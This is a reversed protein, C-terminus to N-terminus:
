TKKKLWCYLSKNKIGGPYYYPYCRHGIFCLYQYQCGKCEPMENLDIELPRRFSNMLESDEWIKKLSERKLNGCKLEWIIECPTVWGDPRIACNAMAAGCSPAVVKDSRPKYNKVDELKKKQTVFSSTVFIFDGFEEKAKWVASIAEEEESPSLYLENTFCVANGSFFVHNFRISNGGIKKGLLVMEKVDKYNLKNLTVSLLVDIGESRLAEVGKLCRQFAGEGRIKDMISACSGDFSFTTGSVKHEKMWRAMEKDILTGNTNLSIGVSQKNLYEVIRKFEPHCLPEGGFLSVSKVGLEVMQDIACFLEEITMDPEQAPINRNMCHRCNLNCRSTIGFCVHKPFAPIEVYNELLGSRGLEKIFKDFDEEAKQRDPIEFSGLMEEIIDERSKGGDLRPWIFKGTENLINVGGTDPNCLLGSEGEEHFIIDGNRRFKTKQSM